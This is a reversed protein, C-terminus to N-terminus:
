AGAPAMPVIVLCDHGVYPCQDCEGGAPLRTAEGEIREACWCCLSHVKHGTWAAAAAVVHSGHGLRRANTIYREITTGTHHAVVLALLSAKLADDDPLSDALRELEEIKRM